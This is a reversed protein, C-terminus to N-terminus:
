GRSPNCMGFLMEGKSIEKNHHNLSALLKTERYASLTSTPLSVRKLHSTTLTLNSALFNKMVCTVLILFLDSLSPPELFRYKNNRDECLDLPYSPSFKIILIKIVNIRPAETAM